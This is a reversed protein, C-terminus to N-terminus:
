KPGWEPGWEPGTFKKPCLFIHSDMAFVEIFALAFALICHTQKALFRLRICWPTFLCAPSCVELPGVNKGFAGENKKRVCRRKKRLENM